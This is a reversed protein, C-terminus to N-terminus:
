TESRRFLLKGKASSSEWTDSVEQTNSSRAHNCVLLESRLLSIHDLIMWGITMQKLSNKNTQKNKITKKNNNKTSLALFYSKGHAFFSNYTQIVMELEFEADTLKM